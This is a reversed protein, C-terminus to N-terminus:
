RGTEANPCSTARLKELWAQHDSALVLRRRGAKVTPLFPWGGRKAPDTQIAKYKSSIGLGDKACSEKLSYALPGTQPPNPKRAHM